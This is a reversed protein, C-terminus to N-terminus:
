CIVTIGLVIHVAVNPVFDYLVRGLMPFVYNTLMLDQSKALGVGVIKKGQKAWGKIRNVDCSIQFVPDTLTCPSFCTLALPKLM